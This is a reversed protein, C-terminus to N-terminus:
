RRDKPIKRRFERIMSLRDLWPSADTIARAQGVGLHLGRLVRLTRGRKEASRNM